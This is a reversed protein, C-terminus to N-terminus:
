ILLLAKIGCVEWDCGMTSHTHGYVLFKVGSQREEGAHTFQFVFFTGAVYQQPNVRHHVLIRNLPSYKVISRPMSRELSVLILEPLKPRKSM